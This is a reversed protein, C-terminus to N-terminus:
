ETEGRAILRLWPAAHFLSMLLYMPVMGALPSMGAAACLVDAEGGSVATALAMAAFTPAAALHLWGAAGLSRRAMPLDTM